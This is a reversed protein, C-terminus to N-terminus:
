TKKWHLWKISPYTSM